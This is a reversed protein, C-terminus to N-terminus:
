KTEIAVYLKDASPNGGGGDIQKGHISKYPEIVDFLRILAKELGNVVEPINEAIQYLEYGVYREDKQRSEISETKGIVFSKIGDKSKYNDIVNKAEIFASVLDIVNEM